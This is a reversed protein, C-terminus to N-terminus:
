RIWWLLDPWHWGARFVYYTAGLGPDYEEGGELQPDRVDADM